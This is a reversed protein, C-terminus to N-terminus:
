GALRDALAAAAKATTDGLSIQLRGGEITAYPAVATVVQGDQVLAIQRGTGSLEKTLSALKDGADDTLQLDIVWGGASEPRGAEASAIGHTIEPEGLLYAEHQYAGTGCAIVFSDALDQADAPCTFATLAACDDAAPKEPASTCGQESITTSVVRRFEVSSDAAAAAAPDDKSKPEDDGSCATLTTAAVLAVLAAPLRLSAGM